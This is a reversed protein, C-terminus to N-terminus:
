GMCLFGKNLPNQPTHTHEPTTCLNQYAAGTPWPGPDKYIVGLSLLAQEHILTSYLDLNM